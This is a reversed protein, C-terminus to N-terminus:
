VVRKTKFGSLFFLLIFKTKDNKTADKDRNKMPYQIKCSAPNRDPRKRKASEREELRKM